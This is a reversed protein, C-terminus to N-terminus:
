HYKIPKKSFYDYRGCKPCYIYPTYRPMQDCKMESSPGEWGCRFCKVYKDEM